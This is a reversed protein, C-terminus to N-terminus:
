IAGPRHLDDWAVPTGRQIEFQHDSVVAPSNVVDYDSVGRPRDARLDVSRENRRLQRGAQAGADAPRTGDPSFSPPTRRM